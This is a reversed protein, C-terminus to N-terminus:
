NYTVLNAVLQYRAQGSAKDPWNYLGAVDIKAIDDLGDVDLLVRRVQLGLNSADLRSTGWCQVVIAPRDLFRTASGGTREVTVFRDPRPRPIDASVKVGGLRGRLYDIIIEEINM